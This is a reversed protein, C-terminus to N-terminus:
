GRLHLYLHLDMFGGKGGKFWGFKVLRGFGGSEDYDLDLRIARVLVQCPAWFARIERGM